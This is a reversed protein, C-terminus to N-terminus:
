RRQWEDEQRVLLEKARLPEAMLEKIVKEMRMGQSGKALLIDGEELRDQVYRGAEASNDFSFVQSEKMGAKRASKAMDVSREGVTILYDIGSEAVMKGIEKHKDESYKGLELMDGLVAFKEQGNEVPMQGLVEIAAKMSLPEANYTDDILLTHKIGEILRMRGKPAEYNELAKSIEILNMGFICGIAIAPLVAYVQQKGLINPLFIPVTSGAYTAKFAIGGFVKEGNAPRINESFQLDSAFADAGIEFGFSVTQASTKEAMPYVMPDDRNIIAYGNGKIHSILIEKEKAIADITGMAQAHVTGIATVVGINCPAMQVLYKIDGPKDVAMELILIEPYNKDKILILKTAKIFIWLWKLVSKGGTESGIITLPVGIENNYNKINKRVNKRAKLVSYIAEKTSTKGVSGTIGIIQPKYKKLVSKAYFKLIKWLLSKM